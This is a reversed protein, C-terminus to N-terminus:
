NLLTTLFLVFKRKNLFYILTIRRNMKKWLHEINFFSRSSFFANKYLINLHKVQWWGDVIFSFFNYIYFWHIFRSLYKLMFPPLFNHDYLYIHCYQYTHECYIYINIRTKFLNEIVISCVYTYLYSFFVFSYFVLFFVFLFFFLLLLLYSQVIDHTHRLHCTHM